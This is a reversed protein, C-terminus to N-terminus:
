LPSTTAPAFPTAVRYYSLETTMRLSGINRLSPDPRDARITACGKNLFPRLAVIARKSRKWKSSDTPISAVLMEPVREKIM